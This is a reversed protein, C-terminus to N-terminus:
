MDQLRWIGDEDVAFRVLYSLQGREDSRLMEFEV